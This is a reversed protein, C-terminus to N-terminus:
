LGSRVSSANENEPVAGRDPDTRGFRLMRKGSFESDIERGTLDAVESLVPCAGHVHDFLEGADLVFPEVQDDDAYAAIVYPM